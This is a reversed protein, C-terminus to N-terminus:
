IDRTVREKQILAILAKQVNVHISTTVPYKEVIAGHKIIDRTFFAEKAHKFNLYSRTARTLQLVMMRNLLKDEPLAESKESMYKMLDDIFADHEFVKRMFAKYAPFNSNHGHLFCVSEM